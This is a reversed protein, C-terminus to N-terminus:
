DEDDEIDFGATIAESETYSTVSDFVSGTV